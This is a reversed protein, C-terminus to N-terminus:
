FDPEDPATVLEHLELYLIVDSMIFVHELIHVKVYPIM